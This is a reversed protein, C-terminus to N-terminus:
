RELPPNSLPSGNKILGVCADRETLFVRTRDKGISKLEGCLVFFMKEVLDGPHLITSKKLINKQRLKECIANLIPEDM